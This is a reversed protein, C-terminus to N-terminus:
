NGYRAPVKVQRGPSNVQLVPVAVPEPEALIKGSRAQKQPAKPQSPQQVPPLNKKGKKLAEAQSQRQSRFASKQAKEEQAAKQREARLLAKEKQIEQKKERALTAETKRELTKHKKAEKADEKEKQLEKAAAIQM